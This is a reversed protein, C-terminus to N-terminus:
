SSRGGQQRRGRPRPRTPVVFAPKGRAVMRCVMDATGASVGDWFALLHTGREAMRRNRMRPGAYKGHQEIDARTIPEHHVPVGRHRAWIEGATDAGAADGCIVELLHRAAIEGTVDHLELGSAIAWLVAVERDIDELSPSVTRSGAIVLRITATM